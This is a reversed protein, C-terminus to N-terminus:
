VSATSLFHFWKRIAEIIAKISSYFIYFFIYSIRGLTSDLSGELYYELSAM